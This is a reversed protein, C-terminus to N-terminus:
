LNEITQMYSYYLNICLMIPGVDKFKKSINAYNVVLWKVRLGAKCLSNELIQPINDDPVDLQYDIIHLHRKISSFILNEAIQWVKEFQLYFISDIIFNCRVISKVFKNPFITNLVWNISQTKLVTLCYENIPQM